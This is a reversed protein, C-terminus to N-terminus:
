WDNSLAQITGFVNQQNLIYNRSRLAQIEFNNHFLNEIPISLCNKFDQIKLLCGTESICMFTM